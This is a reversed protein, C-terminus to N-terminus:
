LRQLLETKKAAFEENTLVGSDHLEGLQRLQDMIQDRQGAPAGAEDVHGTAEHAALRERIVDVMAKGDDKQVNAIEAQNGTVFITIKGQTLGSSWQVSSIKELPFDESVRSLRGEKVFLLRRDTLVLLGIGGGYSGNTMREVIEGDRLHGPLKKVERRTGLRNPMRSYAEEIDSRSTTDTESM